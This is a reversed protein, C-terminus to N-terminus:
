ASSSCPPAWARSARSSASCRASPGAPPWRASTRWISARSAWRNERSSRTRDDRREDRCKDKRALVRPGAARRHCATGRRCQRVTWHRNEDHHEKKSAVATGCERAPGADGRSVPGRAAPAHQACRQLVPPPGRGTCPTRARHAGPARWPELARSGGRSARVDRRGEPPRASGGRRPVRTMASSDGCPDAREPQRRSPESGPRHPALRRAIRSFRLRRPPCTARM